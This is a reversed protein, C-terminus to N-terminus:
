SISCLVPEILRDSYESSLEMHVNYYILIEEQKEKQFMVTIEMYIRFPESSPTYCKSNSSKQVKEM